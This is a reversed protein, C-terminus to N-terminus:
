HSTLCFKVISKLNEKLEEVMFGILNEAKEHSDNLEQNINQFKVLLIACIIFLGALTGQVAHKLWKKHKQKKLSADIFTTEHNNFIFDQEAVLAKTENLLSNNYLLYNPPRNNNKWHNARNKIEKSLSLKLRNRSIWSKFLQCQNLLSEHVISIYTKNDILESHLL